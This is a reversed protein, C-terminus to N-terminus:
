TRTKVDWIIALYDKCGIIVRSNDPSFCVSNIFGLHASQAKMPDGLLVGTKADWIM